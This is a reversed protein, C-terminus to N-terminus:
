ASKKKCSYLIQYIRYRGVSSFIVRLVPEPFLICWIKIVDYYSVSKVPWTQSALPERILFQIDRRLRTLVIPRLKEWFRSCVMCSADVGEQFVYRQDLELSGVSRGLEFEWVRGGM